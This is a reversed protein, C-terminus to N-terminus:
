PTVVAMRAIRTFEASAQALSAPPLCGKYTIRFLGDNSNNSYFTTGYDVLYLTGDPGYEMDQLDGSLSIKTTDWPTRSVRDPTLTSLVAPVTVLKPQFSGGAAFFIWKGDFFPPFKVTNALAPNYHYVPGAGMGCSKLGPVPDKSPGDHEWLVAPKAPPLVELGTNNPSMNVPRAPDFKMGTQGRIPTCAGAAYDWHCYPQNDKLFFPYGLFAASDTIKIQDAGAPGRDSAEQAAPGFEGIFLRNGVPDPFIRYPNRHGMTYIEPRFKDGNAATWLGPYKEKLNGAPITYYKGDVLGAEPHIRLVKGRLDNTNATSRGDDSYEYGPREDQPSYQANCGACSNDGTSLFLNGDKGFKMSGANHTEWQSPIELLVQKSTTDIVDNLFRFRALRYVLKGKAQTANGNWLSRPAYYVYVWTDNAPFDPRVALGLIGGVDYASTNIYTDLKAVVKSAHTAPDYMWINGFREAVFVKGDGGITMEIPQDLRDGGILIEKVFDGPVPDACAAQAAAERAGLSGIQFALAAWAALVKSRRM